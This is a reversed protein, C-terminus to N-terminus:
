KNKRLTAFYVTGDEDALWLCERNRIQRKKDRNTVKLCQTDLHDLM